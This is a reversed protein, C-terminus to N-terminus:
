YSGGEINQKELDLQAIWKSTSLDYVLVSGDLLTDTNVDGLASLTSGSGAVRRVPTGLVVKKVITTQGTVIKEVKTTNGGVSVNIAM